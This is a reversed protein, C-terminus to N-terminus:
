SIYRLARQGGASIRVGEAGAAPCVARHAWVAAMGGDSAVLRRGDLSFQVSFVWSVFGKLRQICKWERPDGASSDFVDVRRYRGVAMLRGGNTFALGYSEESDLTHVISTTTSDAVLLGSRWTTVALLSTRGKQLAYFPSAIKISARESGDLGVLGVFGDDYLPVIITGDEHSADAHAMDWALSAPSSFLLVPQRLLLFLDLGKGAHQM